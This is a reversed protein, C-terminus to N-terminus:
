ANPSIVFLILSVPTAPDSNCVTIASTKPPGPSSTPCSKKIVKPSIKCAVSLM